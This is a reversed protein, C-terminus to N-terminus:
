VVQSEITRVEATMSWSQMLTKSGDAETVEYNVDVNFSTILINSITGGLSDGSMSVGTTTLYAFTESQLAVLDTYKMGASGKAIHYQFNNLYKAHVLSRSLIAALSAVNTPAGRLSYRAINFRQNAANLTVTTEPGLPRPVDGTCTYNFQIPTNTITTDIIPMSGSANGPASKLKENLFEVRTFPELVYILSVEDVYTSHSSGSITFTLPSFGPLIPM